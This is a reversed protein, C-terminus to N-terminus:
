PEEIKLEEARRRILFEIEATQSRVEKKALLDLLKKDQDTLMISTKKKKTMNNEVESEARAQSRAAANGARHPGDSQSSSRTGGYETRDM